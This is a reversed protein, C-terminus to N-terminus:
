SQPRPTRGPPRPPPHPPPAAHLGARGATSTWEADYQRLRGRDAEVTEAARRAAGDIAQRYVPMAAAMAADQYSRRTPSAAERLYRMVMRGDASHGAGSAYLWREWM